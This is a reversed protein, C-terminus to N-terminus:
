TTPRVAVLAGEGDYVVRWNASARLLDAAPRDQTTELVVEDVNLRDLVEAWREHGQVVRLYDMWFDIPESALGGAALVRDRDGSASQLASAWRWDALTVGGPGQEVARAADIPLRPPRTSLLTYAAAAVSLVGIGALLPRSLRLSGLQRALPVAMTLGFAWANGTRLLVATGALVVLAAEWAAMRRRSYALALWTVALLMAWIGAPSRVSLPQETAALVALVPDALGLRFGTWASGAVLPLACLLSTIAVYGPRSRIDENVM